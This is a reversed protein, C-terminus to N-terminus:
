KKIIMNWGLKKKKGSQGGEIGTWIYTQGDM